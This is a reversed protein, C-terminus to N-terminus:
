LPGAGCLTEVSEPKRAFSGGIATLADAFAPDQALLAPGMKLLADVQGKTLTWSTPISHYAQRCQSDGIADFDVAVLFTNNAITRWNAAQEQLGLAEDIMAQRTFTDTFLSRVRQSNSMATRDIGASITGLLMDLIGPTAQSKDLESSPASRSNVMIFVIKKIKGADIAGLFSPRVGKETLMRYPEVVGLNDAIGGDLLHIYKKEGTAYANAVRARVVTEPADYWPSEAGNSVALPPWARPQMDCRSYNTLTVPSLAVPFAASAAVATSIKTKSLDSCLLDFNDQTMAFPTGEVMDGANLVLYAHRGHLLADMTQDHFLSADFYDILADIRERSNTSTEALGVPNLIKWALTGIGDKYLFDDRLAPFGQVGYLAFDAAAVSGGSVSSIVDVEDSLRDGASLQVDAMAQLVGMTLATARSGGGSATVIVLTDTMPPEVFNVRRYPADALKVELPYNRTPYACATLSLVAAALFVARTGNM